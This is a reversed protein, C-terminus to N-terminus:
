TTVLWVVRARRTISCLAQHHARRTLPRAPFESAYTRGHITVTRLMIVGDFGFGPSRTAITDGDAPSGPSKGRGYSSPSRRRRSSKPRTGTSYGVVRTIPAAGASRAASRCAANASGVMVATIVLM